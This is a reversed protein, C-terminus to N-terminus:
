DRSWGDNGAGRTRLINWRSVSLFAANSRVPRWVPQPFRLLEEITLRRLEGVPDADNPGTHYIVYKNGDPRIQSEGLYIMSHYTAPNTSQRFFLIDGSQIKALDRGISYTNFRWLTKADAFQLFANNQLDGAAFPGSRIRFLGAGLPTHPYQYKAVSGVPPVMPLRAADAWAGDHRHLAERYAYRILASCDTIEAPRAQENQFYQVEALYTFWQRFARQDERSDLRLFDPTGDDNTDAPDLTAALHVEQAAYGRAEIHLGIPGPNIGAQVKASWKGDQWVPASVIARKPDFTEIIPKSSKAAAIQLIAEDAGNARIESHDLTVKLEQLSVTIAHTACGCAWGALVLTCLRLMM